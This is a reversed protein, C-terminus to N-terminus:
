SPARRRTLAIRSRADACLERIEKMQELREHNRTRTLEHQEHLRRVTDHMAARTEASVAEEDAGEVEEELDVRWGAEVDAPLGPVDGHGEEARPRPPAELLLWGADQRVVAGRDTLEGVALTVTPRRAGVLGGLAEHTLKLPVTTGVATVHGWSEALLWLMALVRDEVRPLQCIALQTMVRDTQEVFRADLGAVLRPWRRAAVLFHDDLLALATAATAMWESYAVWIPVSRGSRGLVDGPGLVRLAPGNGLRVSRVLMGDLVIAAFAGAETLLEGVDFGGRRVTWAPLVVSQAAAREDTDLFNGLEPDAQLLRVSRQRRV